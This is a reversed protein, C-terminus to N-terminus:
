FTEEVEGEFVVVFSNSSAFCDIPNLVSLVVVKNMNGCPGCGLCVEVKATSMKAIMRQMIFVQSSRSMRVYATLPQLMTKM